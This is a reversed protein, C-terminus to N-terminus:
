KGQANEYEQQGGDRLKLVVPHELGVSAPHRAYPEVQVQYKVPETQDECQQDGSDTGEYQDIGM